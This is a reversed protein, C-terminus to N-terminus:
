VAPFLKGLVITTGHTVTGEGTYLLARRRKEYRRGFVEVVFTDAFLFAHRFGFGGNLSNNIASQPDMGPGDDSLFVTWRRRHVRAIILAYDSYDLANRALEITHYLFDESTKAAHPSTGAPMYTSWWESLVSPLHPLMRARLELQELSAM